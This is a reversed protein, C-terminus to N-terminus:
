VVEAPLAPDKKLKKIIIRWGGFSHSSHSVRLAQPPSNELLQPFRPFITNQNKWPEWLEATEM